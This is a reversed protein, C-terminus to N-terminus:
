SSRPAVLPPRGPHLRIELVPEGGPGLRRRIRTPSGRLKLEDASLPIARQGPLGAEHFMLEKGELRLVFTRDDHHFSGVWDELEEPSLTVAEPEPEREFRVVRRKGDFTVAFSRLVGYGVLGRPMGLKMFHGVAPHIEHDALSLPHPLAGRLLPQSGHVTRVEGVTELTDEIALREAQSHDLLWAAGSGTDIGIPIEKGGLEIMLDPSGTWLKFPATHSADAPLKGERFRLVSAPYDFTVLLQKLSTFGILGQLSGGDPTPVYDYDGVLAMVNTFTVGGISVEDLRVVDRMKIETGDSNPVKAVPELGLERALDDDISAPFSNYTDVHFRFPGKGNVTASVNVHADVHNFPVQVDASALRYGLPPPTEPAPDGASASLVPLTALILATLATLLPVSRVPM